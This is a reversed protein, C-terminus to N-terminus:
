VRHSTVLRFLNLVVGLRYCNMEHIIIKSRSLAELKGKFGALNTLLAIVGACSASACRSARSHFGFYYPPAIFYMMETTSTPISAAPHAM